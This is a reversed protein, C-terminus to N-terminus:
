ILRLIGEKLKDCLLNYAVKEKAVYVIAIATPFTTFNTRKTLLQKNLRYAERIHRKIDNRDHARKFNKKSVSVLIRPPTIKGQQPAETRYIFKLPYVHVHKGKEFLKQIEIDGCLKESKPFKSNQLSSLDIIPEPMM